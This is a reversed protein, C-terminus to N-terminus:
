ISYENMQLREKPSAPHIRTHPGTIAGLHISWEIWHHLWYVPWIIAMVNGPKVIFGIWAMSNATSKKQWLGGNWGACHRQLSAVHSELRNWSFICVWEFLIDTRVLWPVFVFYHGILHQVPTDTASRFHKIHTQTHRNARKYNPYNQVYFSKARGDMRDVFDMRLIFHICRVVYPM